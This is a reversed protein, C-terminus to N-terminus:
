GARRAAVVAALWDATDDIAIDIHGDGPLPQGWDSPTRVWVTTMGLRHAPLLNRAMDEVMVTAEPALGYRDLLAQYPGPDPKPVYAAAVIDFIGDFRGALGMRELVREAHPVSGNTFIFKRGPLEALAAALVPSPGIASVDIDHVFELFPGPAVARENMLGRLTTGHERFLRKQLARAEAPPLDFHTRIYEGMRRDIQAFLDTKAAYLTNDLDFVWDEVHRLPDTM